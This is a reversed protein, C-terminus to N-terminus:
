RAEKKLEEVQVGFVDELIAMKLMLLDGIKNTTYYLLQSDNMQKLDRPIEVSELTASIDALAEIQPKFLDDSLHQSSTYVCDLVNDMIEKRKEEDKLEPMGKALIGLQKDLVRQFHQAMSKEVNEGVHALFLDVERSFADAIEPMAVDFENILAQQYVPAVKEALDGAQDLVKPMLNELEKQAASTYAERDLNTFIKYISVVQLLIVIVIVLLVLRGVWVATKTATKLEVLQREIRDVKAKVDAEKGSAETNAM